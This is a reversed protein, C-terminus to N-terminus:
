FLRRGLEVKVASMPNSKPVNQPQMWPPLQWAYGSSVKRTETIAPTEAAFTQTLAGCALVVALGLARELSRM